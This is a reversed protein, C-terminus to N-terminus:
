PLEMNMLYELIYIIVIIVIGVILIEILNM